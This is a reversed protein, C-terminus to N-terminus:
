VALLKLDVHDIWDCITTYHLSGRCKIASEHCRDSRKVYLYM